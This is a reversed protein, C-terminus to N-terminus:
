PRPSPLVYGVLSTLIAIWTTSEECTDSLVINVICATSLMFIFTIQVVFVIQSRPVRTNFFQWSKESAYREIGDTANATM